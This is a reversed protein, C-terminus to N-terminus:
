VERLFNANLATPTQFPQPANGWQPARGWRCSDGRLLLAGLVACPCVSRLGRHRHARALPASCPHSHQQESRKLSGSCQQCAPVLEPTQFGEEMVERM